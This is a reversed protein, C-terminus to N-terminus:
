SSRRSADRLAGPTVGVRRRFSMIFHSPSSFGLADAITDVHADDKLLLELSIEIRRTLIHAHPTQGKLIVTPASSTIFASGPRPRL